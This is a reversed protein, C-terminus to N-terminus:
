ERQRCGSGVQNDGAGKKFLLLAAANRELGASPEGTFTSIQAGDFLM